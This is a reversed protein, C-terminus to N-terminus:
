CVQDDHKDVHRNEGHAGHPGNSGWRVGLVSYLAVYLITVRYLNALVLLHISLSNKSVHM